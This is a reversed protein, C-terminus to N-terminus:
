PFKGLVASFMSICEPLVRELTFILMQRPACFHLANFGKNLSQDSCYNDRNNAYANVVHM